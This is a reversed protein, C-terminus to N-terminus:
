KQSYESLIDVMESIDKISPHFASKLDEFRKSGLNKFPGYDKQLFFYHERLDKFSNGYTNEM